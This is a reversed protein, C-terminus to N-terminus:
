RVWTLEGQNTASDLLAIIDDSLNLRFQKGNESLRLIGNCGTLTYITRRVDSGFSHWGRPHMMAFRILRAQKSTM